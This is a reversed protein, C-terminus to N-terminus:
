SLHLSVERSERYSAHAKSARPKRVKLACGFGRAGASRGLGRESLRGGGLRLQWTGYGWRSM